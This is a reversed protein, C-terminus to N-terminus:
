VIDIVEPCILDLAEACCFWRPVAAGDVFSLVWLRVFWLSLQYILFGLRVRDFWWRRFLTSELPFRGKRTKSLFYVKQRSNRRQPDGPNALCCALVELLGFGGSCFVSTSRAFPHHPLGFGSM